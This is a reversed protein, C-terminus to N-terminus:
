SFLLTLILLSSRLCDYIFKLAGSVLNGFVWWSGNVLQSGFILNEGWSFWLVMSIRSTRDHILGSWVGFECGDSRFDTSAWWIGDVFLGGLCWFKSIVVLRLLQSWLWIGGETFAQFIGCLYEIFLDIFFELFLCLLLGCAVFTFENINFVFFYGHNYVGSTVSSVWYNRWFLWLGMLSNVFYPLGLHMFLGNYEVLLDSFFFCAWRLIVMVNFFRIQVM